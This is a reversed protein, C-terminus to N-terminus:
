WDARIKKSLEEKAKREKDLRSSIEDMTLKQFDYDRRLRKVEEDLAKKEEERRREEELYLERKRKLEKIEGLMQEKEQILLM